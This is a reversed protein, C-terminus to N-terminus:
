DTLVIPLTRALEEFVARLEAENSAYFHKGGTMTALTTMTAQQAGPLFTVTHITIRNTVARQATVVPDTGQNWQGDTMLLITKAALPRIGPELLVDIAEDLGASMNTAGLMVNNARSTGVVTRIGAYTDTIAQDRTVAVETRRTMRYEYTSRGINSSWTVLSIRPKPQSVECIDLFDDVANRLAAWRSRTAHPPYCVPDPNSPHGTPYRWDIGSMDFVMSHSRDLCLVIEQDLNAATATQTPSFTGQNFFKAFFLNVTGNSNGALMAGNIRVASLPTQNAQFAWSGDPQAVVKGVQVDAASLNLARGDVKNLAAVEIARNVAATSSQERSLAEAGAKAAADVATQLETRTLQMYDVDVSFMAMAMLIVMAVAVLVLVAGKRRSTADALATNWQTWIRIRM